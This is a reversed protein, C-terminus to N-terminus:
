EVPFIEVSGVSLFVKNGARERTLVVYRGLLATACMFRKDKNPIEVDALCVANKRYDPDDGLIM